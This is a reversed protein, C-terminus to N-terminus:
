RRFHTCRDVSVTYYYRGLVARGCLFVCLSAVEDANDEDAEEKDAEEKDAEEKDAEGDLNRMQEKTLEKTGRVFAEPLQQSTETCLIRLGSNAEM